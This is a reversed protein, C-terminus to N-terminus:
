PRVENARVDKPGHLYTKSVLSYNSGRLNLHLVPDPPFPSLKQDDM